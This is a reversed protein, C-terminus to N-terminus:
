ITAAWPLGKGKWDRLIEDEYLAYINRIKELGAADNRRLRFIAAKEGPEYNFGLEPMEGNELFFRM